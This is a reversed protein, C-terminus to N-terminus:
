NAFPLHDRTRRWTRSLACGHPFRAFRSEVPLFIRRQLVRGGPAEGGEVSRFACGCPRGAFGKLSRLLDDYPLQAALLSPPRASLYRPSVQAMTLSDPCAFCLIAPGRHILNLAYPSLAM